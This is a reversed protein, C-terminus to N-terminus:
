NAQNGVMQDGHALGADLRHESPHHIYPNGEYTLNLVLKNGCDHVARSFCNFFPNEQYESPRTFFVDTSQVLNCAIVALHLDWYYYYM